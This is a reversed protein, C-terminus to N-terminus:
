QVTKQKEYAYLAGLVSNFFLRGKTLYDKQDDCFIGDPNIYVVATFLFEINNVKDAYYANEVMFKMGAGGAGARNLSGPLGFGTDAELHNEPYDENKNLHKEASLCSKLFDYDDKALDFRKNEDISEPFYLCKLAQQLETVPSFNKYTFELPEEILFDDKYYGEGLLTKGFPTTFIDPNIQLPKSYLLSSELYFYVPNSARNLEPSIDAALRHIIRTRNFGKSWLKENLYQQGLFDYLRDYARYDGLILMEEIYSGPSKVQATNEDPGYIQLSDGIDMLTNRDLNEINLENLRELALAAVFMRVAGAPYFYTNPDVRFGYTSFVPRNNKDKDIHTYLLQVEYDNLLRNLSDKESAYKNFIEYFFQNNQHEYNYCSFLLLLLICCAIKKM